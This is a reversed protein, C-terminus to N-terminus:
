VNTTWAEAPQPPPPSLETLALALGAELTPLGKFEQVFDERATEFDMGRVMEVFEEYMPMFRAFPLGNGPASQLLIKVPVGGTLLSNRFRESEVYFHEHHSCWIQLRAREMVKELQEENIHHGSETVPSIEPMYLFGNPEVEQLLRRLLRVRTSSRHGVFLWPIPRDCRAKAAPITARELHTLGNFVFRYGIPFPQPLEHSQDHFGLDILTEVQAEDCLRGSHAFWPTGASELLVAVVRACRSRLAAIAELARKEDGYAVTIEYINILFCWDYPEILPMAGLTCLDVSWGLQRLAVGLRRGAQNYFYNVSGPIIVM